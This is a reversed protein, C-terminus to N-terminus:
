SIATESSTGVGGVLALLALRGRPSNENGGAATDDVTGDQSEAWRCGEWNNRWLARPAVGRRLGNEVFISPLGSRKMELRSLDGVFSCSNERRM